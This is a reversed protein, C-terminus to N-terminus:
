QSRAGDLEEITRVSPERERQLRKAVAEVERFVRLFNRGALKALDADSWGRQALEAFLDPFKSVDELGVPVTEIGDFDSGIGIHDAGAIERVHEVHDAVQALTARPRPHASDWAALAKQRENKDTVAQALRKDEAERMQEFATVEKCVFAPVFTAMAMGGNGAIRALVADPVNRPHDVLARANSHSFILPAETTDLAANMAAPSVHSIDVMMGLRNMERIVERGFPSLGDHRASDVAADAWDTTVNHTLTLYRAGLAYCARLVGLSNEIGHGGEMGIMSAIRGRGFEREVDDASLALALQDPYRAIVRRALDIQELQVRAFGRDKIDGPLFVSWVQAGVQGRALRALDTHGPTPKRLDYASVDAPPKGDTRIRWALDNHGDILPVQRLLQRVRTLAEGSSVRV